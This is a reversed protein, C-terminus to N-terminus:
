KKLILNDQFIKRNKEIDQDPDSHSLERNFYKM